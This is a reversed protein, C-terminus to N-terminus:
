NFNKSISVKGLQITCFKSFPKLNAFYNLFNYKRNVTEQVCVKVDFYGTFLLSGIVLLITGVFFLGSALCIAKVPVKPPPKRFQFNFM